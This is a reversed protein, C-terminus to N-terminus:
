VSQILYVYINCIFFSEIVFIPTINPHLFNGANTKSVSCSMNTNLVSESCRRIFHPLFATCFFIFADSCVNWRKKVHDLHCSEFRRGRPGLGRASGAACCRSLMDIIDTEPTHTLYKNETRSSHDFVREQAKRRCSRSKYPIHAPRNHPRFAPSPKVCQGQWYGM